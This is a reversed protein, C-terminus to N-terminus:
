RISEKPDMIDRLSDGLLNFYSVLILIAFGAPLMQQPHSIMVTKAESLMAGWEPTPAQVGLGLFSLTSISIIVWGIDLTALVIIESFINPLLHKTIMFKDSTGIATSYFMYNKYRYKLTIGRIMRAYWAWTIAISAIIVNQMGVGLIGVISLIMVQTPFSLMVDVVRMIIEDIIGEFFGACVGIITGITLTCFMILFSLFVTSQIAYILRSYICRGLNDTGLPYQLSYQAYKNMIDQEYPNNTAFFEPFIGMIIIILIILLAIVTLKDKLLKAIM